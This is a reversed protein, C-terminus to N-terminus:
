FEEQNGVALTTLGLGRWMRLVSPRDDIVYAVQELPLLDAIESKIVTDERGDGNNRMFLHRYPIEHKLLWDETAIGCLDIGRGSVILIHHTQALLRVLDVVPKIPPDQMCERFFAPWDKRFPKNAPCGEM